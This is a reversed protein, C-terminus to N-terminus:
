GGCLTSSSAVADVVYYVPARWTMQRLKFGRKKLKFFDYSTAGCCRAPGRLLFRQRLRHAHIQAGGARHQGAGRADLLCRRLTGTSAVDDVAHHVM